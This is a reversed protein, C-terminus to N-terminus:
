GDQRAAASDPVVIPGTEDGSPFESERLVRALKNLVGNVFAPERGGFFGDAVALYEKLVVLAPTDLGSKLEHSGARLISRLISDLRDLPWDDPLVANVAEDLAERDVWCGKVLQGFFGRDMAGAPFREEDVQETKLYESLVPDVASANSPVANFELQYLAQVAALRAARRRLGRDGGRDGSRRRASKPDKAM